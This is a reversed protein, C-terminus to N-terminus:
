NTCYFMVIQALRLHITIGINRYPNGSVIKYNFTISGSILPSQSLFTKFTLIAPRQDHLHDRRLAPQVYLNRRSYKLDVKKERPFINVKFLSLPTAWTNLMFISLLSYLIYKRQLWLLQRVRTAHKEMQRWHCVLQVSVSTAALLRWWAFIVAAATTQQALVPFKLVFVHFGVNMMMM